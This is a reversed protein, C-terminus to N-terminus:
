QPSHPSVVSHPTKAAPAEQAMRRETQTEPDSSFEATNDRWRCVRNRL